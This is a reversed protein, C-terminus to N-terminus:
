KSLVADLHTPISFPLPFAHIDLLLIFHMFSHYEDKYQVLWHM